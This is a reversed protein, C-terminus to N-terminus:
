GGDTSFDLRQLAANLQTMTYGQKFYSQQTVGQQQHGVLAKVITEEIGAQMLRTVVTHRLSHFVLEKSKIGLDTLFVENFWRGLSRGWGNQPSYTFDPFLKLTGHSRLAEVHELLGLHLLRSHIPVLRQSAATKLQKGGGDDNLDFCWIGNEQRIDKLHIQAIENLRAGTYIGILPGWKQYNKKVIGNKNYIVADLMMRVQENSFPAREIQGRKKNLRISLGAFLNADVHSNRKAWEFMDGYSQLYKNITTVSITDVGPFNLIEALPRERTLVNKSRNKPYAVLTDKVQKAHAATLSRIDTAADLIEKLLAIHDAREMATKPAWNDGIQKEKTYSDALEAISMGNAKDPVLAQQFNSNSAPAFTYDDLSADFDLVAKAYDRYSRKIEVSLWGYQETDKEFAVNYKAMFQALLDSDDSDTVSLPQERNVAYRGTDFSSLFAAKDLISLRGKSHISNRQKDLLQQFHERLMQRIEGYQMGQMRGVGVLDDGLQSLRRSMRLALNPDRTRLSLKLTSPKSHPHCQKPLPWRLYYIGNRSKM